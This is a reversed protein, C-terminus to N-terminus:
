GAIEGNESLLKPADVGLLANSPVVMDADAPRKILGTAPLAGNDGGRAVPNVPDPPGVARESGHLVRLV